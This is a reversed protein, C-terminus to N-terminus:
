KPDIRRLVNEIRPASLVMGDPINSYVRVGQEVISGRGLFKGPNFAVDAQVRSGKGMITGFHDLGTDISNEEGPIRVTINRGGAYNATKVYGAVDVGRDVISDLITNHHPFSGGILISNAIEGHAGVSAGPLMISGRVLSSFGVHGAIYAPGDIEAGPRIRAGKEFWVPGNITTLNPNDIRATEQGQTQTIREAMTERMLTLFQWPYRLERLADINPLLAEPLNQLVSPDLPWMSEPWQILEIETKPADEHHGIHYIEKGM